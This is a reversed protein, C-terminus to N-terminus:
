LYRNIVDFLTFINLVFSLIMMKENLKKVKWNNNKKVLCMVVLFLIPTFYRGQVGAIREMGIPTWTVYMVLKLLSAIALILTLILIKSKTGIEYKSEEAIASIVLLLIFIVITGMNVDIDLWGLKAGVAGFVYEQGYIAFEKIFIEIFKLPNEKMYEIQKGPDVNAAKYYEIFSIPASKFRSTFLFWGIAFISGILIMIGLTKLISKREEKKHFVAIFLIGAVLVYIYKFMAILATFVYLIIEDKKTIPTEKFIMYLLHVIYYILTANLVADASCSAAQHLMMPMCLYVAMMTKAFPIKKISMYGFVLFIVINLLRGFYVALFININFIRCIAIAIASGIYLIPSNGQAACAINVQQSYDTTKSIENYIDQYNKIRYHSYNEIESIISSYSNEQEDIRTFLNGQSIDYAKAIHTGEDPVNLPIIFIAYGISIPIAFAIFLKEIIHKNKRCIYVIIAIVIIGLIGSYIIKNLPYFGNYAKTTFINLVEKCLLISILFEIIYATKNFVVKIKELIKEKKM